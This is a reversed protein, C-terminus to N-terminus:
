RCLCIVIAYLHIDADSHLYIYVEIFAIVIRNNIKYTCQVYDMNITYWTSTATAQLRYREYM